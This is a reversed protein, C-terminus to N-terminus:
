TLSFLFAIGIIGGPRASHNVSILEVARTEFMNEPELHTQGM